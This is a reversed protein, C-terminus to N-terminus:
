KSWGFYEGVTKIGSGGSTSVRDSLTLEPGGGPLGKGGGLFQKNATDVPSGVGRSKLDEIERIKLGGRSLSGSELGLGQELKAVTQSTIRSSDLKNLPGLVDELAKRDTVFTADKGIREFDKDYSRPSVNYGINDKLLQDTRVKVSEQRAAMGIIAAGAMMAGLNPLGGANLAPDIQKIARDDFAPHPDFFDPVHDGDSDGDLPPGGNHGISAHGNPDSKNIPDNEAYAYRNTGVSEITPDMTDPSIFRANAASGFSVSLMSCVLLLSLFRTLFGNSFFRM